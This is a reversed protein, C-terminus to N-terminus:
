LRRGLRMIGKKVFPCYKVLPKLLKKLESGCRGSAIEHFPHPFEKRQTLSILALLASNFDNASLCDYDRPTKAETPAVM